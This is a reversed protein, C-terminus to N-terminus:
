ALSYLEQQNRRHEVKDLECKESEDENCRAAFDPIIERMSSVTPYSCRMVMETTPYVLAVRALRDL